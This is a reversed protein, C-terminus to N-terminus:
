VMDAAEHQVTIQWAGNNVNLMATKAGAVTLENSYVDVSKGVGRGSVNVVSSLLRSGTLSGGSNLTIKQLVYDGTNSRGLTTNPSLNTNEIDVNNNGKLQVREETGVKTCFNVTTGQAPASYDVAELRNFSGVPTSLVTIFQMEEACVCTSLLIFVAFCFKKM